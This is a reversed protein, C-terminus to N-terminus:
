NEFLYFIYWVSFIFYKLYIHDYYLSYTITNFYVIANIALTTLERTVNYTYEKDEEGIQYEITLSDIIFSNFM